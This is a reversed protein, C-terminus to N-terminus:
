FKKEDSEKSVTKLLIFTMIVLCVSCIPNVSSFVPTAASVAETEVYFPFFVTLIFCYLASLASVPLRWLMFKKLSVSGKSLAATQAIICLGGFSTLSAFLPLMSFGSGQFLSLNSIEFAASFIKDAKLGKLFGMLGSFDMLELAINFALITGCIIGLSKVSGSISDTVTQLTLKVKPLSDSEYASQKKSSFNFIFAATLCALVNSAYAILGAKASGLVSLGAVQIIFAPSGCYCYCLMKEAIATFNKNYAIEEKLLKIGVPYGGILSLMFIGFERRGGKFWFRSLKYLPYFLIDAAGSSVAIQSFVMFAFLSPIIVNLCVTVSKKSANIMGESDIIMFVCILGIVAATFVSTMGIKKM